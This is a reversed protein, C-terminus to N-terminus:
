PLRNEDRSDREAEQALVIDWPSLVEECKVVGRVSTPTNTRMGLKKKNWAANSIRAAKEKSYGKARLHEYLAPWLISKGHPRHAHHGAIEKPSSKPNPVKYKAPDNKGPQFRAFGKSGRRKTINWKAPLMDIANIRRARRILYDRISQQDRATAMMKLTNALDIAFLQRDTQGQTQSARESVVDPVIPGDDGPRMFRRGSQEMREQNEKRREEEELKWWEYMFPSDVRMHQELDTKRDSPRDIRLSTDEHPRTVSERLNRRENRTLARIARQSTNVGPTRPRRFRANGPRGPIRRIPTRDPAGPYPSYFGDGDGDHPSKRFGNRTKRVVNGEDDFVNRVLEYPLIIGWHEKPLPSGTYWLYTNVGHYETSMAERGIGSYMANHALWAAYEGHRDFSSGIAAHGFADHVARFRWYEEATMWPHDTGTPTFPNAGIFFEGRNIWLHKNEELDRLQQEANKYPDAGNGNREDWKEVHVGLGGLAEDRTLLDWMEETQRKFDDYAAKYKENNSDRPTNNIADVLRGAKELSAEITTWDCKPIPTGHDRCWTEM